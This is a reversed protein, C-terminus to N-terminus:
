AYTVANAQINSTAVANATLGSFAVSVSSFTINSTGVTITDAATQQFFKNGNSTGNIIYIMTGQVVDYAGDFDFARTWTGTDAVYIGNDVSSTQNMALVRDGAVTTYGDITQLGSLTINATTGVKCPSKFAAGAVLGALRDNQSSAM